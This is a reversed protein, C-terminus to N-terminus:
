AATAGDDCQPGTAEPDSAGRLPETALVIRWGM